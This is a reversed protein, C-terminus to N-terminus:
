MLFVYDFAFTETDLSKGRNKVLTVLSQLPPLCKYNMMMRQDKMM